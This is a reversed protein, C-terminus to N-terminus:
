VAEKEEIGWRRRFKERDAAIVDPMADWDGTQSGGGVHTCTVDLVIGAKSGAAVIAMLMDADGFWWQLDEPFRYGAEGKLMFAFGALGGTGDYRGGCMDETYVVGSGERGDYNPCVAALLPDSRLPGALGSLFRPGIDIDNNLIAVNCPWSRRLAEAIGANWMQHINMGDADFVEVNDRDLTALWNKTKRNSGNDFLFVKDYGGQAKLQDLLSGTLDARNKLPVVVYTPVEPRYSGEDLYTHKYHSTKIGTHVHIPFGAEACRRFFTMDEGFVQGKYITEDFWPRPEPFTEALKELVSRHVVFSSGGTADCEVLTDRPYDHVPAFGAAGAGDVWRYITPVMQFSRAGSQTEPGKRQAFALAGVIPRVDKDAVSLLDHVASPEFGMDADFFALWEADSRLFKRAVTNRGDTIRGAGCEEILLGDLTTGNALDYMVMKLVSQMFSHSVEGPHLYAFVFSM